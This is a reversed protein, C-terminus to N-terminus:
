KKTVTINGDIRVESRQGDLIPLVKLWYTTPTSSQQSIVIDIRGSADDNYYVDQAAKTTGPGVNGWPATRIAVIAKGGGTNTLNLPISIDGSYECTCIPLGDIKKVVETYNKTATENVWTTAKNTIYKNIYGKFTYSYAKSDEYTNVDTDANTYTIRVGGDGNSPITYTFQSDSDYDSRNDYIVGYNTADQATTYATGPLYRIIPFETTGETIFNYRTIRTSVNSGALSISSGNRVGPVKGPDDFTFSSGSPFAISATVGWLVTAGIFMVNFYPRFVTLSTSLPTYYKVGNKEVETLKVKWDTDNSNTFTLWVPAGTGIAGSNLRVYGFQKTSYNRNDYQSSSYVVFAALRSATTSGNAVPTLGTNNIFTRDYTGLGNIITPLIEVSTGSMNGLYRAIANDIKSNLGAKYIDMQENFTETIKDFEAKTVFASGDNSSQTAYTNINLLSIIFLALVRKGFKSFKKM